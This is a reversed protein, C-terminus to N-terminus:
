ISAVFDPAIETLKRLALNVSQSDKFIEAVDADLLVINTGEQYAKHHKGRVGQFFDYNEQLQRHEDDINPQSM